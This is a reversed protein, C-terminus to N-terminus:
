FLRWVGRANLGRWLLKASVFRRDLGVFGLGGDFCSIWGRGM